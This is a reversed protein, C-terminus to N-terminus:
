EEIELYSQFEAMVSKDHIRRKEESRHITELVKICQEQTTGVRYGKELVKKNENWERFANKLEDVNAGGAYPRILNCAVEWRDRSYRLAMAEVGVLGGDSERVSRALHQVAKKQCKKHIRVNYNEVFEEPAGVTCSEPGALYTGQKNKFFNTRRRRVKVLSFNRKHALAYFFVVINLKDRIFSGLKRAVNAGHTTLFRPSFPTDSDLMRSEMWTLLPVVAVHDVLGVNPHETTKDIMSGETDNLKRLEVVVHEILDSAVDLIIEPTGALHLSTRNYVKDTFAHVLVGLDYQDERKDEIISQTMEEESADMLSVPLLDEENTKSSKEQFLNQARQVLDSLIPAHQQSGGATIYINCGILRKRDQVSRILETSIITSRGEDQEVIPELLHQTTESETTASASACCRPVSNTVVLAVNRPLVRRSSKIFTSKMLMSIM